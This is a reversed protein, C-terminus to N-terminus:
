EAEVCTGNDAVDQGTVEVIPVDVPFASVGTVEFPVCTDVDGTPCPGCSVGLDDLVDCVAYPEVEPDKDLGAVMGITDVTAALTLGTFGDLAPSFAGRVEVDYYQIMLEDWPLEMSGVSLAIDPNNFTASPLEFTRSCTDQQGDETGIAARLDIPGSGSAEFLVVLDALGTQLLAAVGTSEPKVLTTTSFDIEWTTGDVAAADVPAGIESTTFTQSVVDSCVEATVTYTTNAELRPAITISGADAEAAAEDVVSGDPGTITLVGGSAPGAFGVSVPDVFLVDTAGDAPAIELVTAQCPVDTGVCAALLLLFPLPRSM